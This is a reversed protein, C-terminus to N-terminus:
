FVYGNRSFVWHCGEVASMYHVIHTYYSMKSGPDLIEKYIYIYVYIYM